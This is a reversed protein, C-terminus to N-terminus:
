ISLFGYVQLYDPLLALLCLLMLNNLSNAQKSTLKTAIGVHEGSCWMVVICYAGGTVARGCGETLVFLPVCVCSFVLCLVEWRKEDTSSM